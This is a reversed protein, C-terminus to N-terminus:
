KKIIRKLKSLAKRLFSVKKIGGYKQLIRHIGKNKYELWFSERQNPRMTPYALQPQRYNKGPTKQKEGEMRDLLYQGKQSNVMIMSVGLGDEFDPCENEIGWYDSITLDSVRQRSTYPCAYCSPRTICDSYYTNVFADVRKDGTIKRGDALLASSSNGRWSIAKDRFNFQVIGTKIQTQLWQMFAGFFGPSPVGHCIIDATFLNDKCAKRAELLANLGAVQCPTGTFLVHKGQELDNLLDKYCASADSQM